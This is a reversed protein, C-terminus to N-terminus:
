DCSDIVKDLDRYMMAKETEKANFSIAQLCYPCGNYKSRSDFRKHCVPCEIFFRECDDYIEPRVPIQKELAKIAMKLAEDADYKTCWEHNGYHYILVKIAQENTM